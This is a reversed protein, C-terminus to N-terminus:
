KIDSVLTLTVIIYNMFSHRLGGNREGLSIKTKM